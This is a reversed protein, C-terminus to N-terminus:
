THMFILIYVFNFCLSLSLNWLYVYIINRKNESCLVADHKKQVLLWCRICHTSICVYQYLLTNDTYSYFSHTNKDSAANSIEGTSKKGKKFCNTWKQIGEIQIQDASSSMKWFFYIFRSWIYLLQKGHNHKLVFTICNM